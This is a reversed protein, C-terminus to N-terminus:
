RKSTPDFRMKGFGGAGGLGVHGGAGGRSRKVRGSRFASLWCHSAYMCLKCFVTNSVCCLYCTDTLYFMCQVCRNDSGQLDAASVMDEERPSHQTCLCLLRCVIVSMCLMTVAPRTTVKISGVVASAKEQVVYQDDRGEQRTAAITRHYLM